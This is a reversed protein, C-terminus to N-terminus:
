VFDKVFNVHVVCVEVEKDLREDPHDYYYIAVDYAHERSTQLGWRRWADDGLPRVLAQWQDREDDEGEIEKYTIM